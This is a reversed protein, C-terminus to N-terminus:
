LSKLITRIEAAHAGHPAARLYAEYATRAVAMRGAAQEVNGELLYAEACNPDLASARRALRLTEAERGALLDAHALLVMADASQPKEETLKKCAVLADQVREWRIASQCAELPSRTDTTAAKHLTEARKTTAVAPAMTEAVPRSRAAVAKAPVLVPKTPAAV